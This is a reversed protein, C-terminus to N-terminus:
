PAFYGNVDLVLQTPDTAFASIFGNLTPVIAANSDISGDPSNLTSVVPQPEGTPWLTLYGLPGTPVVTANLSFAQATSPLDCSGTLPFDREQGPVLAPGGLPGDPNRTDVARCPSLAYLSLGGTGPPAFYGNIDIVVQTTDYVFVDISGMDGAPVIAANATILGTPANLTSVVPQPQGTPWTTLYSLPGSPVVTFNLSYAAAGSPVSGCPSTPLPFTRSQGATMIPGGLPGDPTRTDVLRCPTVPYFTLATSGTTIFYGNIDLVVDTTGQAYVSVSGNTGAPVIAADAKIIGNTSNLTSASPQTQGTPWITLYFLPGSPVVTVNLSYASAAPPINCPGTTLPFDRSNNDLSPGGLPGAPNRTDVVRCPPLPVFLLPGAGVTNIAISPAIPNPSNEVVFFVLQSGDPPITFTVTDPPTTPIPNPSVGAGVANPDPGCPVTFSSTVCNPPQPPQCMEMSGQSTNCVFYGYGGTAGTPGDTFGTTSTLTVTFPSFSSSTVQYVFVTLVSNPPPNSATFTQGVIGGPCPNGIQDLCPSPSLSPNQGYNDNPKTPITCWLSPALMAALIANKFLTM